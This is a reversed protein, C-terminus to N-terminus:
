ATLVKGTYTWAFPRAPLNHHEVYALMQTALDYRASAARYPGTLFQNEAAGNSSFTFLDAPAPRGGM